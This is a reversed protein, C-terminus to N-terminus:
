LKANKKMTRSIIHLERGVFGLGTHEKTSVSTRNNARLLAWTREQCYGQTGEVMGLSEATLSIILRGETGSPQFLFCLRCALFMPTQSIVPAYLQSKAGRHCICSSFAGFKMESLGLNPRLEAM